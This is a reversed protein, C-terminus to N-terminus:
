RPRRPKKLEGAVIALSFALLLWGATLQPWLDSRFELCVLMGFLSWPIMLTAVVVPVNRYPDRAAKKATTVSAEV